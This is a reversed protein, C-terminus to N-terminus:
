SPMILNVRGSVIVPSPSPLTVRRKNRLRGHDHRHDRALDPITAGDEPLIRPCLLPLASTQPSLRYPWVRLFLTTRARSIQVTADAAGTSAHTPSFEGGSHELLPAPSARRGPMVERKAASDSGLKDTILGRPVYTLGKLLKRFFQKAAHQDRRRQVLLDLVNGEQDMARWLEHREGSIRLLV